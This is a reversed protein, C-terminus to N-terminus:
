FQLYSFLEFIKIMILSDTFDINIEIKWLETILDEELLFQDLGEGAFQVVRVVLCLQSDALIDVWEDVIECAEIRPMMNQETRLCFDVNRDFEIWAMKRIWLKM